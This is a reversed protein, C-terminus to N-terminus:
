YADASELAVFTGFTHLAVPFGRIRLTAGIIVYTVHSVRRNTVSSLSGDILDRFKEWQLGLTLPIKGILDGDTLGARSVHVFVDFFSVQHPPLSSPGSPSRMWSLSGPSREEHAIRLEHRRFM